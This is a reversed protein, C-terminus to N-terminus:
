RDKKRRLMNLKMEAVKLRGFAFEGSGAHDLVAQEISCDLVGADAMAQLGYEVRTTNELDLLRNATAVAGAQGIYGRIKTFQYGPMAAEARDLRALVDRKFKEEFSM